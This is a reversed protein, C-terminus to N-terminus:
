IVRRARPDFLDRRTHAAPAMTAAAATSVTTSVGSVLDRDLSCTATGAHGAAAGVSRSLLGAASAVSTGPRAGSTTRNEM